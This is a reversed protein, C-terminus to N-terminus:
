FGRERVLTDLRTTLTEWMSDATSLVERMGIMSEQSKALVASYFSAPVELFAGGGFLSGRLEDLRAGTVEVLLCHLGADNTKGFAEELFAPYWNFVAEWSEALILRIRYVATERLQDVDYFEGIANMELHLFLAGVTANMGRTRVPNKKHKPATHAGFLAAYPSPFSYPTGVSDVDYKGTYMFELM